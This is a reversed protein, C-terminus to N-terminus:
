FSLQKRFAEACSGRLKRPNRTINFERGAQWGILEPNSRRAYKLQNQFDKLEETSLHSCDGTKKWREVKDLLTKTIVIIIMTMKILIVLIRSITIM